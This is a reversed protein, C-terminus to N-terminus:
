PTRGSRSRRQGAAVAAMVLTLLVGLLWTALLLGSGIGNDGRNTLAGAIVWVGGFRYVTPLVLLPVIPRGGSLWAIAVFPPAVINFLCLLWFVVVRGGILLAGLCLIAFEIAGLLAARLWWRRREREAARAEEVSAAEEARIRAYASWGKPDSTM